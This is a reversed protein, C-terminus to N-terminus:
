AVLRLLIVELVDKKIFNVANRPCLAM